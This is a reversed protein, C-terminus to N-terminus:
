EPFLRCGRIFRDLLRDKLSLGLGILEISFPWLTARLGIKKISAATADPGMVSVCDAQAHERCKRSLCVSSCNAFIAGSGDFLVRSLSRSFSRHTMLPMTWRLKSPGPRVRRPAEVPWFLDEVIMKHVPRGLPDPDLQDIGQGSGIPRGRLHQDVGSAHRAM